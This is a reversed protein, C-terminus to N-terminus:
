KYRPDTGGNARYQTPIGFSPKGKIDQTLCSGTDDDKTLAPSYNTPLYDLPNVTAWPDAYTGFRSGSTSIGFHLHPAGVTGVEGSTGIKQGADVHNGVDTKTDFSSMHEYTAYLKPSSDSEIIFTNYGDNAKTKVTGSIAAYIPKNTVDIDIAAHYGSSGDNKQHFHMWCQNLGAGSNENNKISAWSDLDEKKIPWVWGAASGSCGPSSQLSSAVLEALKPYDNYPHIGLETDATVYQGGIAAWNIVTIGNKAAFDALKASMSQFEAARKTSIYNVWYIKATQNTQRVTTYLSGLKQTFDASDGDNTGLEIIITGASAFEAKKAQVQSEGWSMSKSVEAVVKLNYGNTSLTKGLNGADRMGVSLSDGLLEVSKNSTTDTATCQSDGPQPAVTDELGHDNEYGYVAGLGGRIANDLLHCNYIQKAIPGPKPKDALNQSGDEIAKYVTQGWTDPNTVQDWTLKLNSTDLGNAELVAYINTGDNIAPNIPDMTYCQDPFDYTDVGSFSAAAYPSQAAFSKKSFPAILASGINSVGKVLSEGIGKSAGDAIAFLNRSAFSQPNSLSAYKEFVSPKNTERYYSDTALATQRTKDTTAAAGQYRSSGEASYAAGELAVNFYQGGPENGYLMPGGGMFQMFKGTLWGMFEDLKNQIGTAELIPRIIDSIVGGLLDMAKEIVGHLLNIIPLGMATRYAGLLPSIVKGLTDNYKQELDKATSPGGIQKDQCLYAFEKEAAAMNEPKLMAEQHAPDCYEAKNKSSVYGEASASTASPNIVKSWGESNSASGWIKMFGSVEEPTVEGAKIQDRSIALTTYLASAQQGKALSILESATHDKIASDAKEFQDLVGIINVVNLIPVAATASKALIQKSIDKFIDETARPANETIPKGNSDRGTEVPKDSNTDGGKGPDGSSARAEESIPDNTVKSCDTIGFLCRVFRGSNTDEPFVRTILKNRMDIKKQDVKDRTKEFFRWNRVGNINQLDRRIHRRKIVQWSKTMGKVEKKIASRGAKDSDYIKVDVYDQFKNLASIDGRAIKDYDDNSINITIPKGGNIDIRGAGLVKGNKDVVSVFKIGRKEWLEKEFKSARMTRYWDTFPRNTDVGSAQLFKNEHRASPDTNGDNWEGMRMTIYAAIWKDSRRDSAGIFRSYAKQDINSVLGDLKFLNLFSFLAGFGILVMVLLAAGAGIAGKKGFRGKSASQALAMAKEKYFSSNPLASKLAAQETSFEKGNAPNITGAAAEQDALTDAPADKDSGIKKKTKDSDLNDPNIQKEQDYVPVFSM